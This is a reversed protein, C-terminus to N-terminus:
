PSDIAELTFFSESSRYDGAIEAFRPGAAVISGAEDLAFHFPFARDLLNAPLNADFRRKM